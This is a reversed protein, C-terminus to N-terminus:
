ANAVPACAFCGLADDNPPACRVREACAPFRAATGDATSRAAVLVNHTARSDLSSWSM